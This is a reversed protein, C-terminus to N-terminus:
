VTDSGRKKLRKSPPAPAGIRGYDAIRIARSAHGQGLFVYKWNASVDREGGGFERIYHGRTTAPSDAPPARMAREIEDESVISAVQDEDRLRQYYGADSLEHYRLDIKKRSADSADPGAQDLLFQKSVWDVEGILLLRDHELRDLVEAWRALVDLAELPADPRKQLFRRCAEWYYRQLDLASAARGNSLPITATLSPDACLARLSRIPRKVRPTPPLEGAEICDLVLLTTGIRLYEATDAMNSDGLAIQLRQRANLLDFYDRPSFCADFFISKLFHGFSYVPRDYLFGGFGVLCTMAPAKDALHFHGQEDLMGAGSIICRSLLFPTLRRRTSQFAFLQVLVLLALALPAMLVRTARDLLTSLWLPCPQGTDNGETVDRGFLVLSLRQSENDFSQLLFYLLTAGAVYALTGVILVLFGLWTLMVLPLMLLLGARWAILRWGTALVAEYNEQAGYVNGQADRDNKLLCFEGDLGAEAAATSLLRDQARQYCLTQRPGRCEPTSGEVLGADPHPREVEYWVGGGAATFIGDKLHRAPVTLIQKRLALTLARYLTYKTPRAVHPSDPRYRIAYETELGVLRDFIPVKSAV